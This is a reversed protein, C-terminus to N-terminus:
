QARIFSLYQTGHGWWAAFSGWDTEQTIDPYKELAYLFDTIAEATVPSFTRVIKEVKAMEKCIEDIYEKNRDHGYCTISKWIKHCHNTLQANDEISRPDFEYRYDLFNHINKLYCNRGMENLARKDGFVDKYWRWDTFICPSTGYVDFSSDLADIADKVSFLNSDRWLSKNVIQDVVWDRSPRSMGTLNKLHSKFVTLLIEIKEEFPMGKETVITGILCRLLDTFMGVADACTIICVGGPNTFEAITQVFQKPNKQAPILGECIVLDFLEDSKYEEILSEVFEHRKQGPFNEAFLKECDKLGTPNGDVLVYKSPNLSYTYLANHGSGPGFEIVSRDRIFSSVIGLRRYLYKRRDYHKALDSIDQSVPSIKHKKYFDIYPRVEKTKM